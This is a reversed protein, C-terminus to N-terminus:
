TIELQIIEKNTKLLQGKDKPTEKDDLDDASVCFLNYFHALFLIVCFIKKNQISCIHSLASRLTPLKQQTHYAIEAKPKM